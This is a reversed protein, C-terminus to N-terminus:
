SVCDAHKFPDAGIQSCRHRVSRTLVTQALPQDTTAPNNSFLATQVYPCSFSCRKGFTSPATFSIHTVPHTNSPYFSLFANNPPPVILTDHSLMHDTFVPLNRRSFSCPQHIMFRMEYSFSQLTMVCSSHHQVQFIFLKNKTFPVM